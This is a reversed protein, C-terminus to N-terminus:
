RNAEGETAKQGSGNRQSEFIRGLREWGDEEVPEPEESDKLRQRLERMDFFKDLSMSEAGVAKKLGESRVSKGLQELVDETALPSSVPQIAAPGEPAPQPDEKAREANREAVAQFMLEPLDLAQRPGKPAFWENIKKLHAGKVKMAQRLDQDTANAPIRENCPAVCIFKDDASFVLLRSVNSEDVRPYVEKGIWHHTLDTFQGYGLGRWRIGNKTVKVPQIPKTLLLALHEPSADRKSAGKWSADFVESPSRRDMADGASPAANYDEEVWRGFDRTFTELTPAMNRDLRRALGDPKNEPKNGCYTPWLKGFRGEATGFFREIPKSQGHYPQCFTVACGLAGFIGTAAKTTSEGLGASKQGRRREAKTRGHLAYSDYDKGNDVYFAEPVGHTRCGHLLASIISNQNPDHGYICWGVIKRSRMDQWATLWPRVIRGGPLKVMVDFQHHDGVWEENTRLTSYDRVISPMAKATFADAGDRAKTTVPKPLKDLYRCTAGYSLVAWGQRRGEGAALQWCLLKSPKNDNLWLRRVLELFPDKDDAPPPEQNSRGDVLGGVGAARYRDRLRYLTRRSIMQEGQLRLQRVYDETTRDETVGNRTGAALAKEWGTVIEAKRLIKQRQKASVTRLDFPIQEPFKVRALKPDADERVYWRPKGGEEPSRLAAFGTSL